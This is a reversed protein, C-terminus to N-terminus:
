PLLFLIRIVKSQISQLSHYISCVPQAPAYRNADLTAIPRRTATTATPQQNKGTRTRPLNSLRALVQKQIEPHSHPLDVRKWESQRNGTATQFFVRTSGLLARQLSGNEMAALLLSLPAATATRYDSQRSGNSDTGQQKIRRGRQRHARRAGAAITLALIAAMAAQKTYPSGLWQKLRDRWSTEKSFPPDHRPNTEDETNRNSRAM